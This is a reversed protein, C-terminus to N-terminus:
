GDELVINDSTKALDINVLLGALVGCLRIHVICDGHVMDTQLFAGPIDSVDM